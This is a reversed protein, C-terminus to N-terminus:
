SIIISEAARPRARPFHAPKTQSAQNRAVMDDPPGPTHCLLGSSPTGINCLIVQTNLSFAQWSAM